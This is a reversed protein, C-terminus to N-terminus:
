GVRPQIETVRSLLYSTDKTENSLPRNLAKRTANGKLLPHYPNPNPDSGATEKHEPVDSPNTLHLGLELVASNTSFGSKYGEIYEIKRLINCKPSM